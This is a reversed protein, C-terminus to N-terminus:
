VFDIGGLNTVFICKSAFGCHFTRVAYYIDEDSLGLQHQKSKLENWTEEIFDHLDNARQSSLIDGGDTEGSLDVFLDPDPGAVNKHTARAECWENLKARYYFSGSGM